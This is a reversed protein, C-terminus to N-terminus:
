HRTVEENRLLSDSTLFKNRLHRLCYRLHHSAQYDNFRVEFQESPDPEEATLVKNEKAAQVAYSAQTRALLALKAEIAELSDEHSVEPHVFVIPAGTDVGKDIKLFTGGLSSYDSRNYPWLLTHQGRYKPSYGYHFNVSGYKPIGFIQEKLIPAGCVFLIDPEHSAILDATSQSNMQYTPVTVVDGCVDKLGRKGSGLRQIIEQIKHSHPKRDFVSFFLRNIVRSVLNQKRRKKRKKKGGPKSANFDPRILLAIEHDDILGSAICNNPSSNKCICVIKM